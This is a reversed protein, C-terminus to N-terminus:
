HLVGFHVHKFPCIGIALKLSKHFAAGLVTASNKSPENQLAASLSLNRLPSCVFNSLKMYRLSGGLSEWKQCRSYRVKQWMTVPAFVIWIDCTEYAWLRKRFTHQYHYLRSYKTRSTSSKHYVSGWTRGAPWRCWRGTCAATSRRYFKVWSLHSFFIQHRVTDYVHFIKSGKSQSFRM